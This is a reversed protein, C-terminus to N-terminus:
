WSVDETLALAHVGVEGEWGHAALMKGKKMGTNTSTM